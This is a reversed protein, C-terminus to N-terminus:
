THPFAQPDQFLSPFRPNIWSMFIVMEEEEDWGGMDRQNGAWARAQGRM